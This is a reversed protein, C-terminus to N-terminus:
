LLFRTIWVELGGAHNYLEIKNGYPTALKSLARIREAERNVLKRQDEANSGLSRRMSEVYLRHIESESASEPISGLDEISHAVWLQPHVNHQRFTELIRTAMPDDADLPFWWALLDIKQAALAAIEQDFTSIDNERWIDLALGGFCGQM